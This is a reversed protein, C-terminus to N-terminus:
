GRGGDNGGEREKEIARIHKCGDLKESGDSVYTDVRNRGWLRSVSEGLIEEVAVGEIVRRCGLGVGLSGFSGCLVDLLALNVVLGFGLVCLILDGLNDLVLGEEGCNGNAGDDSDKLAESM